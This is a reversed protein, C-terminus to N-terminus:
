LFEKNEFDNPEFEGDKLEFDWSLDNDTNFLSKEIKVNYIGNELNQITPTGVEFYFLSTQTIESQDFSQILLGGKYILIKGIYKTVQKNFFGNVNPILIGRAFLGFPEKEILKLPEYIQYEFAKFIETLNAQFDISFSNTNGLRETKKPSPKNSCKYGDVYFIDNSLLYDLDKFVALNLFDCKFQHLNTKTKRFTIENGNSQTYSKSESKIEFDNEYINLRISKFLPDLVNKYEFRKTTEKKYETVYFSNSYWVNYSETHSLKLHLNKTYFDEKFNGFEFIIQKIGKKDTYEQYYFDDSIDRVIEGCDDILEAKLNGAFAINEKQNTEQLFTENPLMWINQKYAINVQSYDDQKKASFFDNKYLRVFSYDM